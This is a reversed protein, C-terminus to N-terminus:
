FPKTNVMLWELARPINALRPSVEKFVQEHYANVWNVEEATMLSKDMMKTQIPVMTLREFGLSALGGFRNATTVEKVVVLNEIRIGFGGDEYYGPENSCIMRAALPTTIHFRPSISQPGEHVNLAAGVGHGTGHRYNLGEKWLPLRALTDLACGPTGEPFVAMDLAIHGQLVRTYAMKERKSPSGLHLTRTIDTTGCEYQAGSDLLLLTSSDVTRCTGEKARYHIIAGNPGAGAITAFSLGVFGPQAARRATLEADIQVETLQLGAGVTDELYAFFDCLAVADRLHAERMGALEADNKLAKATVVPSAMELVAKKGKTIGNQTAYPATHDDHKRGRKRGSIERGKMEEAAENAAQIIAYSVKGPDVWLTKGATVMSIVDSMMSDYPVVEVGSSKLHDSVAQTIKAADVYLKAPGEVSVVAYSLFVPNCEVDNGRLNYLWAVEDLMTVLLVDAQAEQIKTRMRCLKDSVSEGAWEMAHVRVADQPLEPRSSGWAQDVPNIDHLLPVMHLGAPELKGKLKKVSDLTHVFPDIGVRSGEQLNDALWDEIEPCGPSGAKMLTWEPGLEQSAQLYYRGDTWLLAKDTTIVATGATGTFRSIFERRTFCSPSYESMHPDETPVIFAAVGKGGDLAGMCKRVDALRSDAAAKTAQANTGSSAIMQPNITLSGFGKTGRAISSSKSHNILSPLHHRKAQGFHSATFVSRLFPVTVFKRQSISSCFNIM